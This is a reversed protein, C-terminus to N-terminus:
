AHNEEPARVGTTTDNLLAQLTTLLQKLLVPKDLYLDAGAAMAQERVGDGGVSIVLIPTGAFRADVRLRRILEDGNMVPLFYDVIALHVPAVGALALAERGDRARVVELAGGEGFGCHFRKVAHHFLKHAFDNDEVLLVRFPRPPAAGTGDALRALLDRVTQRERADAFVFRVAVGRPADPSSASPASRRVVEASVRLRELLGPFSLWLAINEGLRFPANTCVFVGDEELDTVYDAPLGLEPGYEVKLILDTRAGHRRDRGEDSSM